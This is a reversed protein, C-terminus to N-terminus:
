LMSPHHLSGVLAALYQLLPSVECVQMGWGFLYLDMMWTEVREPNLETKTRTRTRTQTRAPCVITQKSVRFFGRRIGDFRRMRTGAGGIRGTGPVPLMEAAACGVAALRPSTRTEHHFVFFYMSFSSDEKQKTKRKKQRKM